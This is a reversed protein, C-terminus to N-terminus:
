MIRVGAPLEFMSDPIDTFEINKYEIITKGARSTIETRIPLGYDQWIWTKVSGQGSTYEVVSSVKGDISETGVVKANYNLISKAEDMPSQPVQGPDFPAKVAINQAPMYAYMTKADKDILTVANVGQQSIETRIKNKKLWMKTTMAPIGPGTILIDYKISVIKSSMGLTESLTKGAPTPTQSRTPTPARIGVPTATPAPVPTAAATPKPTAEPAPTSTCAALILALVLGLFAAMFVRKSM